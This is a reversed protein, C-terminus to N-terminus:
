AYYKISRGAPLELIEDGTLDNSTIFFDLNDDVSGYVEACFDIMTRPRDLVRVREQKLSFSIEILYGAALAVVNQLKQYAAGTDVVPYSLGTDTDALTEFQADRWETLDAMLTLLADAADIAESKTSFQTNVVSVISGSVYASATLDKTRLENEDEADSGGFISDALNRYADLRAKIANIARGPAQILQIIDAALALPQAILIDIGENIAAQIEEFQKKVAAVTDAAAKLGKKVAGVVSLVREKLTVRKLATDTTVTEEFEEAAITNYEDLAKLVQTGPDTSASPYILGTTEYFTVEVASQNAATKLKDSRSITGFPAVDVVGYIPHELIGVGPELMITEFNDALLDCSDGYFFMRLPYKNGTRGLDQVYTGNADPFDFAATKKDVTKSVDEYPFTLRTGSPSTYAAEKIRDNWAM